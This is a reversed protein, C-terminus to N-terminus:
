HTDKKPTVVWKFIALGTKLLSVFQKLNKIRVVSGVIYRVRLYFKRHAEKVIRKLSEETWNESIVVPRNLDKDLPNQADIEKYWGKEKAEQYLKTGYYPSLASFQAYTPNIKAAFNITHLTDDYTEVPIGLIFYAMTKIGAQHTLKFARKIQEPTTNKNLYDLGKQNGSEVGYAIIKCGAKKMWGLLEEDVLNVRGECKWTIKLGTDIIGRCINIAREKNVTFLDDYFIITKVSLNAVIEKLENIINKPSRARWKSGFISKDCFICNYPCGRSTFMTTITEGPSLAYKYRHNPLLHRAPFPISDIDEILDEPDSLIDRTIVGKCQGSFKNQDLAAALNVFSREGEGIIGYDIHPCQTFIQQKYASVHPGGMVIHKTYKRCIAIARFTNDIVPSMGGIGIIEPKKGAIATEFDHWSLQLAFADLIEVRYKEKELAAALYALGLPPMVVNEHTICRPPPNILLIDM